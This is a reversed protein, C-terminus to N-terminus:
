DDKQQRHAPWRALYCLAHCQAKSAQRATIGPKQKAPTGEYTVKGSVSGGAPKPPGAFSMAAVGTLLFAASIIQKHRM